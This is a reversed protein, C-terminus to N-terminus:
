KSVIGSVVAAVMATPDGLVASVVARAAAGAMQGYKGVSGRVVPRNQLSGKLRPISTVMQRVRNKDVNLYVALWSEVLMEKVCSLHLNYAGCQSRYSWGLGTGGCGHCSSSLKSCLYLDRKGDDLVQPLNACCPHLDFDCSDCHYVFGHVYTRCADCVRKCKGPPHYYLKFECKQYFPHTTRPAAIACAKHLTFACQHCKYKYGIGAEKCGDCNYPTETYELRLKHCPHIPHTLEKEIKM